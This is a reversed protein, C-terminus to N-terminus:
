RLVAGAQLRWGGAAGHDIRCRPSFIGRIQCSMVAASFGGRADVSSTEWLLTRPVTLLPHEADRHRCATYGFRYGAAAAARVVGRNFYGGPYAFHRIPVGLAHELAQRSGALEAQVRAESELTLVAHTQTHSGITIGARSMEAVMEWSLPLHARFAPEDIEVHDELAEVVQRLRDQPVTGLLLRTAAVPDWAGGNLGAIEPLALGLGLLFGGLDRTAPLGTAAARALLLHLRDYVPIVASGILDTIVFMAAPIGKEKLLPFAHAYVDRYGDDFTVAALPRGGGNGGMLREGLEDLSVLRFHRGLWDLHHALMRRSIMTGPLARGAHAGVDEVVSHYGLVAPLGRAGALAGLLGDARTRRLLTAVGAKALRRMTLGNQLSM